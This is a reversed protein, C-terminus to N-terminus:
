AGTKAEYFYETALRHGIVAFYKDANSRRRDRRKGTTM